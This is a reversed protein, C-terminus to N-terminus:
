KELEGSAELTDTQESIRNPRLSENFYLQDFLQAQHFYFSPRLDFYLFDLFSLSFRQYTKLVSIKESLHYLGGIPCVYLSALFEHCTQCNIPLAM